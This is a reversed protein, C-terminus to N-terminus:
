LLITPGVQVSDEEIPMGSYAHYKGSLSWRNDEDAMRDEFIRVKQLVKVYQFHVHRPMIDNNTNHHTPGLLAPIGSLIALLIVINLCSGGQCIQDQPRWLGVCGGHSEQIDHTDLVCMCIDSRAHKFFLM